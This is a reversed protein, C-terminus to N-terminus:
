ETQGGGQQTPEDEIQANTLFSLFYRKGALKYTNLFARIQAEQGQLEKPVIVRFDYDSLVTFAPLYVPKNESALYVFLPRDNGTDVIDFRRESPDFYENLYYRLIRVQPTIM